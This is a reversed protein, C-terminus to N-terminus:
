PKAHRRVCQPGFERWTMAGSAGSAKLREWEIACTRLIVRSTDPPIQSTGNPAPAPAIAAPQEIRRPPPEPEAPEQQRAPTDGPMAPRPPPMPPSSPLGQAAAGSLAAAHLLGLAFAVKLAMRETMAQGSM